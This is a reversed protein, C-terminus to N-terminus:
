IGAGRALPLRVTFATGEGLVSECEISGGHLALIRRALTLGLGNGPAAHSTDGQYFRDYMRRMTEEGMGCGSDKLTFVAEAGSTILWVAVSGGEPTFKIANDFLNIWVQALLEEAGDVLADDIQASLDIRRADWKPELMLVCRRIQEGLNFRQTDALISQSEVKSLNLVNTALASLRTSEEIVIDLYEKREEETLDGRRLLEAFGKISVIPTKFEHSFNNVFDSRLIEIGGLEEAMRNFGGALERFERPHELRLRVSFDGGALENMASVAQRVPRLPIRGFLLSIVTGIVICAFLAILVPILLRHGAFRGFWGSAYLLYSMAAVIVATLLFFLFMVLSFLLTLGIRHRKGCSKM